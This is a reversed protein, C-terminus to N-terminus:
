VSSSAHSGKAGTPPGVEIKRPGKDYLCGQLPPRSFHRGLLVSMFSRSFASSLRIEASRKDLLERESAREYICFVRFKRMNVTNSEPALIEIGSSKGVPVDGAQNIEANKFRLKFIVEEHLTQRVWRM